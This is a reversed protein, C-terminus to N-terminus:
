PRVNSIENFLILGLSTVLPFIMEGFYLGRRSKRSCNCFYSRRLSLVLEPWTTSASSWYAIWCYILTLKLSSPILSLSRMKESPYSTMSWALATRFLRLCPDRSKLSRGIWGMERRSSSILIGFILPRSAKFIILCVYLSALSSSTSKCPCSSDLCLVFFYIRATWLGSM